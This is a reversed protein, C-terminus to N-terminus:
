EHAAEQRSAPEEDCNPCGAGIWEEISSRSWRLLHGLRVPHPMRGAEALHRAHKASCGLMAAVTRVDILSAAM